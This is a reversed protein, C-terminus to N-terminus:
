EDLNVVVIGLIVILTGIINPITIKEGFFVGAWILSWILAISRNAYAVSVDFRKLVQQWLVAYIGLIVIELGYFGIFKISLLKNASALKACISSLTYIVIIAQVFIINFYKRNNM